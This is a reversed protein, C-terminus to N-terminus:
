HSFFHYKRIKEPQFLLDKNQKVNKPEIINLCM